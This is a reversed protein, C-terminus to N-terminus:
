IRLFYIPSCKCTLVKPVTSRGRSEGIGFGNTPANVAQLSNEDLAPESRVSSKQPSLLRNLEETDVACSSPTSPYPTAADDDDTDPMQKIQELDVGTEPEVPKPETPELEAPETEAPETEAPETQQQQIAQQKVQGTRKKPPRGRGRRAPVAASTSASAEQIPASALSSTSAVARNSSALKARRQIWRARAAEKSKNKSPRGRGRGSTPTAPAAPAPEEAESVEAATPDNTAVVNKRPRGRGRGGGGIPTTPAPLEDESVEATDPSNAAVFNKRPRGRGRSVKPSDDELPAAPKKGRRCFVKDTNGIVCHTLYVQRTIDMEEKQQTDEKM